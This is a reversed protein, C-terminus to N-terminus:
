KDDTDGVKEGSTDFGIPFKEKYNELFKGDKKENYKKDFRSVKNYAGCVPCVIYLISSVEEPSFCLDNRDYVMLSKCCMCKKKYKQVENYGRYKLLEM